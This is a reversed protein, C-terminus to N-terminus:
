RVQSVVRGSFIKGTPSCTLSPAENPRVVITLTKSEEGNEDYCRVTLDYQTVGSASLDSTGM